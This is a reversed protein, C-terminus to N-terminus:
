AMGRILDAAREAIMITPANTNGGPITPMVSADIVRLGQLGHVRLRSDLVALTDDGAGMRCTGSPHYNTKVFRRCHMALAEDSLDKPDPIGIRALFCSQANCVSTFYGDRRGKATHRPCRKVMWDGAEITEGRAIRSEFAAVRAQEDM